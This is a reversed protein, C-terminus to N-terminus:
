GPGCFLDGGNRAIGSFHIEAGRVFAAADKVCLGNGGNTAGVMELSVSKM